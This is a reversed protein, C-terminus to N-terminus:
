LTFIAMRKETMEEIAFRVGERGLGSKKVGGYPMNDVRFGPIDNIILSGVDIEKIAKFALNVNDTFIGANLGYDSSNVMKFADDITDYPVISVLPGFVEDCVVPMDLNVDTLVAPSCLTGNVEGGVRLNAGGKVADEIWTQVRSAEEKSIMPGLDSDEAFQDGVKLQSVMPILIDLFPKTINKDIFARQLSICIQGANGYSGRVVAKAAKELDTGETIIVAANSGLELTVMKIGATRLIYEGVARSGTFTVMAVREDSVLIDGIESSNGVVVSLAKPPLGAEILFRCVKITALPTKSAPKIIVANGSAIAPAIKHLSLLLPYNFPAIASIIGKPVLRYFGMRNKGWPEYDMPIVEGGIRKAEEAALGVVTMSRYVETRAESILKGSEAAVTKILDEENQKILQATKHLIAARELSTLEKMEHFGSELGTLTKDIDAKSALPVTDILSEDYPNKVELVRSRTVWEGNILLEM